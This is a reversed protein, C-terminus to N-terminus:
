VTYSDMKVVGDNDQIGGDNDDQVGGDNDDRVGGDNDDQVGRNDNDRIGGNDDDRVGTAQYRSYVWCSWHQLVMVALAHGLWVLFCLSDRPTTGGGRQTSM